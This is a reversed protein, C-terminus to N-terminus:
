NVVSSVSLVSFLLNLKRGCIDCISASSMNTDGWVDKKEADRHSTINKLRLSRWPIAIPNSTIFNVVSSVSLVSFQLKLKRGCIDCISASSM